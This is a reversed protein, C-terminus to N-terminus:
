ILQQLKERMIGKTKKPTYVVTRDRLKHRHDKKEQPAGLVTFQTMM